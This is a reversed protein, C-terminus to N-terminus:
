RTVAMLSDCSLLHFFPWDPLGFPLLLALEYLSPVHIDPHPFGRDSYIPRPDASSGIGANNVHIDIPGFSAVAREVVTATQSRDSLDCPVSVAEGGAAMARPRLVVLEPGSM